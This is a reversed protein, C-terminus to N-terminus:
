ENKTRSEKEVLGSLGFRRALESYIREPPLDYYGLLVLTHFWLDAVEYV